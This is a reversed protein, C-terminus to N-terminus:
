TGQPFAEYVLSILSISEGKSYQDALLILLLGPCTLFPPKGGRSMSVWLVDDKKEDRVYRV